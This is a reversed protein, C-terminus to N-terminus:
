TTRAGKVQEWLLDMDPASMTELSQGREAALAEVANFRRRFKGAAWRLAAEPDVHLHRAVNVVAFLLDGLEEALETQGQGRDADARGPSAGTAPRDIVQRLESLEEPVKALAGHVDPWDFGVSAARSGVKRAYLLAPLNGPIGDMAGSRGKEARKIQEWNRKVDEAGSVVVDGFVHPHRAVLKDHVSRAVDAVSFQGEEAALASHFFVQFLVDGLEEELHEFASAGQHALEDLAEVAEYSEELLYQALSQHTQERDWPCKARLTRVLEELRAMEPAFPLGLSAVWLSTLHDPEVSRDLDAWSVSAIHEDPLGLRQLVVLEVPGPSLEAVAAVALKVESLVEHSDCQGVLVPGRYGAVQAAFRHGDVIRAGAALPDVGLRAFAVDAFSVAPHVATTVRPDARLLEVTREAVLPSGPVAYLVRGHSSAAEVLADVIGSYVEDLSSAAQYLYDFSTAEAVLHACPHRTTRLYRRPVEEIAGLTAATAM